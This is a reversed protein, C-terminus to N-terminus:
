ILEYNFDVRNSNANYYYRKEITEYMCPKRTKDLIPIFHKIEVGNEKIILESISIPRAKDYSTGSHRAFMYLSDSNSVITSNITVLPMDNMFIMRSKGNLTFKYFNNSNYTVSVSSSSNGLGYWCKQSGLALYFMNNSFTRDGFLIHANQSNSDFRATIEIETNPSAFYDMDIYQEAPTSVLAKLMTSGSPLVSGGQQM